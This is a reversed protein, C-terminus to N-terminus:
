EAKSKSAKAACVGALSAFVVVGVVAPIFHTSVGTQPSDPDDPNIAPPAENDKVVALVSKTTTKFTIVGDESIEYDLVLWPEGEGNKVLLIFLDEAEIGLVKLKISIEIGEDDGDGLEAGFRIDFLDSIIAHEVPAGKTAEEWAKEFEEVLETFAKESLEEEADTLSKEVDEHLEKDEDYVDKIPTVILDDIEEVIEPADKREISPVFSAAAASLTLISAFAVTAAILRFTRM